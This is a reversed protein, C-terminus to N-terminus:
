QVQHLRQKNYWDALFYTSNNVKARYNYGHEDLWKHLM